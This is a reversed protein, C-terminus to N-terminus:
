HSGKTSPRDSRWPPGFGGGDKERERRKKLIEDYKQRQSETLMERTRTVANEFAKERERTLEESQKAFDATIRDFQKRQEENLLAVVADDRQRQLDRHREGRQRGEEKLMGSWIDDMLKRQDSSLDLQDALSARGGSRAPITRQGLVGLAVGALLTLICATAIATKTNMMPVKM